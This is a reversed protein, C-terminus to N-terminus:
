DYDAGVVTGVDQWPGKPAQHVLVDIRRPVLDDHHVVIGGVVGAPHDLSEHALLGADGVQELGTLADGVAAVGADRGSGRRDDAEGVVIHLHRAVPGGGDQRHQGPMRLGGTDASPHEGAPGGRQWRPELAGGPAGQGEEVISVLGEVHVQLSAEAQDGGVGGITALDEVADAHECEVNLRDAAFHRRLIVLKEQAEPVGAALPEVPGGEGGGRAHLRLAHPAAVMAAPMPAVPVVERDHAVLFHLLGPHTPEETYGRM